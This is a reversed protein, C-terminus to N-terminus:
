GLWSHPLLLSSPPWLSLKTLEEPAGTQAEEEASPGGDALHKWLDQTWPDSPITLRSFPM